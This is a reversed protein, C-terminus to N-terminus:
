LGIAAGGALLRVLRSADGRELDALLSRRPARRYVYPEVIPAVGLWVLPFFYRPWLLPLALCILGFVRLNRLRRETVRTPRWRARRGAGRLVSEAVVVAPIVTGFAVFPGAWRVAPQRPLFVYYWNQIRLNLAEFVLWLAAAWFFLAATARLDHLLLFRGPRGTGGTRAVVADGILLTGAWAFHYYWSAFPEVGRLLGATGVLLVAAGALLVARYAARAAM